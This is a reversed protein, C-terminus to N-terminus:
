THGREHWETIGHRKDFEPLQEPSAIRRYISFNQALSAPVFADEPAAAVLERVCRDVVESAYYALRYSGLKQNWDFDVNPGSTILLDADQLPKFWEPLPNNEGYSRPLYHVIEDRLDVIM